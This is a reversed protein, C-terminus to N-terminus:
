KVATVKLDDYWIVNGSIPSGVVSAQGAIPAEKADFTVLWDKPEADGAKWAKAEVRWASDGTSRVQMKCRTWTGSEWNFPASAVLTQQEGDGLIIDVAKKGAAVQLKYGAVGGLGVGFMPSRRGKATGLIRAEVAVNVNTVPGFLISFSDVPAGPLELVKNTGLDKVAFEGQMVMFGDPVKGVEAKEFDNQFLPGEAARATLASAMMCVIGMVLSWRSFAMSNGVVPNAGFATSCGVACCGDGRKPSLALTLALTGERVKAKWYLNKTFAPTLGNVWSSWRRALIAVVTVFTKM